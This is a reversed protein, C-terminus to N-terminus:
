NKKNLDEQLIKEIQLAFKELVADPMQKYYKNFPKTFFLSGALGQAYIRKQMWYAITTFSGKRFQGGGSQGKPTRFRINNRVIYDRLAEMPPKKMKYSFKGWVSNNNEGKQVGDKVLSPNAGFVGADKYAGYDVMFMQLMLGEPTDSIQYKMSDPNDALYKTGKPYDERANKRAEAIVSEAFNQMAKKVRRNKGFIAM